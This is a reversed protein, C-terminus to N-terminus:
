NENDAKRFILRVQTGTDVKSEVEILGDMQMMLKKVIVLGLGTGQPKSTFFPKFLNDLQYQTMGVGNDTVTLILNKGKESLSIFISPNRDSDLFADASNSLLNLMVQQLARADAWAHDHMTRIETEVSIGHRRFDEKVLPLLRDLFSILSLAKLTLNEHMNFNKLSTLLYEVRHIENLVRDTYELIKEQSYNEINNKLVSMTMKMSNIPNGIEHRIGSFIYGLNNMMQVSEAITELRIKETVDRSIVIIEDKNLPMFSADFLLNGQPTPIQYSFKIITNEQRCQNMAKIFQNVVPVPFVYHIYHGKELRIPVVEEDILRASWDLIMGRDNLRLYIHPIADFLLKLEASALDLLDITESKTEEDEIIVIAFPATTLSAENQLSDIPSFVLNLNVGQRDDNISCEYISRDRKIIERAKEWAEQLACDKGTCQPHILDHFSTGPNLESLRYDLTKNNGSSYIILGKEDVLLFMHPAVDIPTTRKLESTVSAIDDIIQDRSKETESLPSIDSVRNSM